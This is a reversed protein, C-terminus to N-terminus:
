PAFPGGAIAGHQGVLTYDLPDCSTFRVFDGSSDIAPRADEGSQGPRVLTVTGAGGQGAVQNGVLFNVNSDPCATLNGSVNTLKYIVGGRWGGPLIGFRNLEAKTYRGCRIVKIRFPGASLRASITPTAARSATPVPHAGCGSAPLAAVAAAAAVRIVRWRKNM